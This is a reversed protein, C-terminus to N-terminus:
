SRRRRANTETIAQIEQRPYSVHHVRNLAVSKVRLKRLADCVRFDPLNALREAEDWDFTADRLAAAIEDDTMM